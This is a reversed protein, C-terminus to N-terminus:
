PSVRVLLAGYEKATQEYDLRRFPAERAESM